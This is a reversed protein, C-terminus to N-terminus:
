HTYTFNDVEEKTFFVAGDSSAYLTIDEADFKKMPIMKNFLMFGIPYVNFSGKELGWQFSFYEDDVKCLSVWMEYIGFDFSRKRAIEFLGASDLEGLCTITKKGHLNNLVYKKHNEYLEPTKESDPISKTKFRQM